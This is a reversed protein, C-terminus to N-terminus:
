CTFLEPKSVAASKSVAQMKVQSNHLFQFFITTKGMCAQYPRHSFLLLAFHLYRIQMRFGPIKIKIYRNKPEHFSSSAQIFNRLKLYKNTKRFMQMIMSGLWKLKGQM